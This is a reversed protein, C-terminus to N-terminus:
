KKNDELLYTLQYQIDKKINNIDKTLDEIEKQLKDYEQKKKSDTEMIKAKQNLEMLDCKTEYFNLMNSLLDKKIFDKSPKAYVTIKKDKGKIKITDTEGDKDTYYIDQYKNQLNESFIDLLTIKSFLNDTIDKEFSSLSFNISWVPINQWYYLFILNRKDKSIDYEEKHKKETNKNQLIQEVQQRINTNLKTSEQKGFEKIENFYAKEDERLEEEKKQPEFTELMKASFYSNILFVLSTMKQRYSLNQEMGDESYLFAGAQNTLIDMRLMEADLVDETPLQKGNQLLKQRLKDLNNDNEIYKSREKIYTKFFQKRNAIAQEDVKAIMEDKKKETEYDQWCEKYKKFIGRSDHESYYRQQKIPNVRDNHFKGISYPIITMVENLEFSSFNVPMKKVLNWNPNDECLLPQEMNLSKNLTNVNESFKITETGGNKVMQTLELEPKSYKRVKSLPMLLFGNKDKELKTTSKPSESNIQPRRTENRKKGKSCAWAIVGIALSVLVALGVALWTEQEQTMGENQKESINGKFGTQQNNKKTKFTAVPCVRNVNINSTIM